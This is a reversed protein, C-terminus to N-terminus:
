LHIFLPQSGLFPCQRENNTLPARRKHPTTVLMLCLPFHCMAHTKEQQRTSEKKKVYTAKYKRKMMRQSILEIERYQKTPYIYIPAQLTFLIKILSMSLNKKRITSVSALV